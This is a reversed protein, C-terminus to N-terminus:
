TRLVRKVFAADLKLATRQLPPLVDTIGLDLLALYYNWNSNGKHEVPVIRLQEFVRAAAMLHDTALSKQHDKLLCKGMLVNLEAVVWPDGIKKQISLGREITERVKHTDGSDQEELRGEVLLTTGMGRFDAFREFTVFADTFYEQEESDLGMANAARRIAAAKRLQLDEPHISDHIADYIARASRHVVESEELRGYDNLVLAFLSLFEARWFRHLDGQEQLVNAAKLSRQLLDGRGLPRLASIVGLLSSFGRSLNSRRVLFLHGALRYVGSSAPYRGDSYLQRAKEFVATPEVEGTLDIHSRNKSREIAQNATACLPILNDFRTDTSDENIHALDVTEKGECLLCREGYFALIDNRLSGAPRNRKM